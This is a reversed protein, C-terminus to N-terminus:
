WSKNSTLEEEISNNEGNSHPTGPSAPSGDGKYKVYTSNLISSPSAVDGDGNFSVDCHNLNVTVVNKNESKLNTKSEEKFDNLFKAIVEYLLPGKKRCESINLEKILKDRTIGDYEKGYKTEPDFVSLTFDLGFYELFERVLNLILIGGPIQIFASLEENKLLAERTSINEELALFVSARLEAQFFNDNTKNLLMLNSM